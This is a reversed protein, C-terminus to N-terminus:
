TQTNAAPWRVYIFWMTKTHTHTHTRISIVNTSSFEVNYKGITGVSAAMNRLILFQRDVALCLSLRPSPYQSSWPWSVPWHTTTPSYIQTGQYDNHRCPPRMTQPPTPGNGSAQQSQPNSDRRFYPHKDRTFTAHQQQYLGRRRASLEGM